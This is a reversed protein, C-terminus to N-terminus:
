VGDAGGTTVANGDTGAAENESAQDPAQELIV